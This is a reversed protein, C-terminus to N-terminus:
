MGVVVAVTVRIASENLRFLIKVLPKIVLLPPVQNTSNLFLTANVLSVKVWPNYMDSAVVGVLLLILIRLPPPAVLNAIFLTIAPTLVGKYVVVVSVVLNAILHFPVVASMKAFPVFTIEAVANVGVLISNKRPSAVCTGTNM